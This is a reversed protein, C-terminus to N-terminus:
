FVLIPVSAFLTVFLGPLFGWPRGRARSGRLRQGLASVRESPEASLCKGEMLSVAVAASVIM